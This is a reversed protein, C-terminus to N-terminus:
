INAKNLLYKEELLISESVSGAVGGQLSPLIDGLTKKLGDIICSQLSNNRIYYDQYNLNYNVLCIKENNPSLITRVAEICGVEGIINLLQNKKMVCYDDELFAATLSHRLRKWLAAHTQELEDLQETSLGLQTFYNRGNAPFFQKHYKNNIEIPLWLNAKESLLAGIRHTGDYLGFYPSQMVSFTSIGPNFGVEDLRKLFLKYQMNAKETDLNNNGSLIVHWVPSKGNRLLITDLMRSTVIYQMTTLGDKQPFLLDSSHIFFRSKNALRALVRYGWLKILQM